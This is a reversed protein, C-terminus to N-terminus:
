ENFNKEFLKMKNEYISVILKSIFSSYKAYKKNGWYEEVIKDVLLNQEVSSILFNKIEYTKFISVTADEFDNSSDFEDLIKMAYYILTNKYKLAVSKFLNYKNNKYEPSPEYVVGEYVVKYSKRTELNESLLQPEILKYFERTNKCKLIAEELPTGEYKKSEMYVYLNLYFKNEFYIYNM